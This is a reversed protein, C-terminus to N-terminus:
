RERGESGLATVRIRGAGSLWVGPVARRSRAEGANHHWVDSLDLLNDAVRSRVVLPSGLLVRVSGGCPGNVAEQKYNRGRTILIHANGEQRGAFTYAHQPVCDV